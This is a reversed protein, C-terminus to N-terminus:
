GAPCGSVEVARAGGLVTLRLKSRDIILPAPTLPYLTAVAQVQVGQVDTRGQEARINAGTYEMVVFRPESIGRLEMNATIRVGGPAPYIDCSLARLGARRATIPRARLASQIIHRHHTQGDLTASFRAEVPLCVDKCIGFSVTGAVRIPRDGTKPTVEIPLVLERTYGITRVGNEIYIKPAPWHFRVSKVNDSGSWDFVPPIGNSGPTRWYTKWGPKMRIQAAMMHHGETPYGPLIGFAAVGNIPFDEAAGASALVALMGALLRPFCYRASFIM